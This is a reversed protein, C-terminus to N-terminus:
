RLTTTSKPMIKNALKIRGVSVLAEIKEKSQDEKLAKAAKILQDALYRRVGMPKIVNLTLLFLHEM